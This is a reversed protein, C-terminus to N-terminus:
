IQTYQSDKQLESPKIIEERKHATNKFRSQTQERKSKNVRKLFLQKNKIKISMIDEQIERLISILIKEFNEDLEQFLM